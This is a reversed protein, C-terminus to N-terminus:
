NIATLWETASGDEPRLLLEDGTIGSKVSLFALDTRVRMLHSYPQGRRAEKREVRLYCDHIAVFQVLIDSTGLLFRQGDAVAKHPTCRFHPLQVPLLTVTSRRYAQALADHYITSGNGEPWKGVVKAGGQPENPGWPGLILFFVLAKSAYDCFYLSFYFAKM